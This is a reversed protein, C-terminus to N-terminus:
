QHGEPLVGAACLTARIENLDTQSNQKALIALLLRAMTPAQAALKARGPGDGDSHSDLALFGSSEAIVTVGAHDAIWSEEWPKM